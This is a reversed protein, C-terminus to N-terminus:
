LFYWKFSQLGGIRWFIHHTNWYLPVVIYWMMWGDVVMGNRWLLFLLIDFRGYLIDSLLCVNPWNWLSNYTNRILIKNKQLNIIARTLSIYFQRLKPIIKRGYTQKTYTSSFIGNAAFSPNCKPFNAGPKM